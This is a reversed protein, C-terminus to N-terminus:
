NDFLEVFDYVKGDWSLGKKSVAIEQVGEFGVGTFQYHKDLPEFYDVRTIELAPKPDGSYRFVLRM